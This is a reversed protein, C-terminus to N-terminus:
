PTQIFRANKFDKSTALRARDPKAVADSWLGAAGALASAALPAVQVVAAVGGAAQRGAYGAVAGGAIRGDGGIRLQGALEFGVGVLLQHVEGGRAAHLRDHAGVGLHQGFVLLVFM